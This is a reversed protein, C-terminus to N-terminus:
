LIELFPIITVTLRYVDSNEILICSGLGGDGIVLDEIVYPMSYTGNGTCNGAAKFADWGSNGDIHIKGSVASINM